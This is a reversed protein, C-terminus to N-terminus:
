LILRFLDFRSDAGLKKLINAQHFKVTRLSIDLATAVDQLTRGLLLLSLVARERESLSAREVLEAIKAQLLDGLMPESISRVTLRVTDADQVEATVLRFGGEAPAPRFVTSRPWPRSTDGLAPCGPCPSAYGHIYQYCRKGAPAGDGLSALCESSSRLLGFEDAHPSISYRLDGTAQYHRGGMEKPEAKRVIGLVCRSSGEGLTMLELSLRV